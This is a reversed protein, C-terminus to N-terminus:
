QLQELRIKYAARLKNATPAPMAAIRVDVAMSAGIKQLDAKTKAEAFEGLFKLLLKEDTDNLAKRRQKGYDAITAVADKSLLGNKLDAAVKKAIDDLRENTKAEDLMQKLAAIEHSEDM